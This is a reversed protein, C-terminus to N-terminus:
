LGLWKVIRRCPDKPLAIAFGPKRSGGKRLM